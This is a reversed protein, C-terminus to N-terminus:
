EKFHPFENIKSDLQSQPIPPWSTRQLRTTEEQQLKYQRQGSDAPLSLSSEESSDITNDINSNSIIVDTPSLM